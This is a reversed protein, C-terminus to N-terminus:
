FAEQRIDVMRFSPVHRLFTSTKRVSSVVARRWNGHQPIWFNGRCRPSTRAVSGEPLFCVQHGSCTCVLWRLSWDSRFFCLIEGLHETNWACLLGHNGLLWTFRGRSSSAQMLTQSLAGRNSLALFFEHGNVLEMARGSIRCRSSVTRAVSRVRAMRKVTSVEYSLVDGSGSALSKNHVDLGSRKVGPSLRALHVDTTNAGRALGGLNDAYSWRFGLSGMGRLSGLLPPTSHDRCIFLRGASGALTCNDRVDQCFFM